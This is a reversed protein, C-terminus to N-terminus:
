KGDERKIVHVQAKQRRRPRPTARDERIEAHRSKARIVAEGIRRNVMGLLHALDDRRVRDLRATEDAGDVTMLGILARMARHSEEAIDLSTTWADDAEGVSILRGEDFISAVFNSLDNDDTTM